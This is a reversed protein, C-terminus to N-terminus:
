ANAANYDAFQKQTPELSKYASDLFNKLEKNGTSKYIQRMLTLTTDLQYAIERAYTRDFIANLRADELTALLKENSEAATVKKGLEGIQIGDSALIPTADRITNTLYVGLTSNLARLKTSKLNKVSSSVTSKTSMLRAALRETPGINSSLISSVISIITILIIVGLCIAGILVPKQSFVSSKGASPPAIQDLYSSSDTQQNNDPYMDVSYKLM